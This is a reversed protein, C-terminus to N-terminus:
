DQKVYKGDVLKYNFIVGGGLDWKYIDGDQSVQNLEVGLQKSFDDLSGPEGSGEPTSDEDDTTIETDVTTTESEIQSLVKNIETDVTPPLGDYWWSSAKTVWTDTEEIIDEIIKLKEEESANKFNDSKQLEELKNFQNNWWAYGGGPKSNDDMWNKIALAPVTIGFNQLTNEVTNIVMDTAWYSDEYDKYDFGFGAIFNAMDPHEKIWEETMFDSDQLIMAAAWDMLTEAAGLYFPISFLRSGIETTLIRLAKKPDTFLKKLAPGINGTLFKGASGGYSLKSVREVTGPKTFPIRKPNFLLKRLADTREQKLQIMEQYWSGEPKYGGQPLYNWISIVDADEKSAREILKNIKAREASTRPLSNRKQTLEEILVELTEKNKRRMVGLNFEVRDLYRNARKTMESRSADDLPLKNVEDKLKLYSDIDSTIKGEIKKVSKFYSSLTESFRIVKGSKTSSSALKEGGGLKLYDNYNARSFNPISFFYEDNVFRKLTDDGYDAINNVQSNFYEAAKTNQGQDLLDQVGKKVTDLKQTITVANDDVITDFASKLGAFADNFAKPNDLKKLDDFIDGIPRANDGDESLQKLLRAGDDGYERALVDINKTTIDLLDDIVSIAGKALKTRSGENILGMVEQIRSIEQLLKKNDM